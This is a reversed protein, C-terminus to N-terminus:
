LACVYVGGMSVFEKFTFPGFIKDEIDLITTSQIAHIPKLCSSKARQSILKNLMKM